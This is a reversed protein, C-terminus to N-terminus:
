VAPTPIKAAPKGSPKKAAKKASATKATAVAIKKAKRPPSAPTKPAIVTVVTKKTAHAPARKTSRKKAPANEKPAKTPPKQEILFDDKKGMKVAVAIWAPAKGHGTWTKGSVPDCYKPVGALKGPVKKRRVTGSAKAAPAALKLDAVTLGYDNMLTRIKAVVGAVEKKFLEAAQKELKSIQAKVDLYTSM